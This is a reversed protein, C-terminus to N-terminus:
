KILALRKVSIEDDFNMQCFYIGSPAMSGSDTDGNWVVSYEGEALYDDVLTRIARGAQDYVTINVQGSLRLVFPIKTHPNFPNPRNRGLLFKSEISPGGGGGDLPVTVEVPGFDECYGQLDVARLLYYYTLGPSVEYDYCSYENSQLSSGGEPGDIVGALFTYAGDATEDRLVEYHDLNLESATVWSIFVKGPYAAASFDLLEVPLSEDGFITTAPSVLSNDETDAINHYQWTAGGDPSRTFSSGPNPDSFPLARGESSLAYASGWYIEAITDPGAPDILLINEATNALGSGITGDDTYVKAGGYFGTPTGGGFLVAFENLALTTGGPFAYKSGPTDNDSLTWGGIDVSGPGSNVIEIFEDEQYHRYGDNNTDGQPLPPPHYCIENIFIKADAIGPILFLALTIAFLTKM